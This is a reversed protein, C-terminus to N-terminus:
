ILSSDLRNPRSKYLLQLALDDPFLTSLLLNNHATNESDETLIQVFLRTDDGNFVWYQNNFRDKGIPMTRVFYEQLTREHMSNIKDEKAQVELENLKM